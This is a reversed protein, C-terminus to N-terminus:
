NVKSTGDMYNLEFGEQVNHVFVNFEIEGDTSLARMQVGRAVLEEGKFLPTVEYMVTKGGKVSNQIITEFKQMGFSKSQNFDRTGTIMNYPTDLNTDLMAYGILHSRNYLTVNNSINKQKWGTPKINQINSETNRNESGRYTEPKLYAKATQARNYEDLNSFLIQEGGMDDQFTSEDIGSMDNNIIVYKDTGNYEPIDKETMRAGDVTVQQINLDETNEKKTEKKVPQSTTGTLENMLDSVVPIDDSVYGGALVMLITAVIGTLTNKTSKKM